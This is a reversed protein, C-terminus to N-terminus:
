PSLSIGSEAVTVYVHFQRLHLSGQELVPVSHMPVATSSLNAYQTFSVSKTGSSRKTEFHKKLSEKVPVPRGYGVVSVSFLCAKGHQLLSSKSAYLTSNSCLIVYSNSNVMIM